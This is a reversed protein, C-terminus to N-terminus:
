ILNTKTNNQNGIEESIKQTTRRNIVWGSTNFDRVIVTFTHIEWKLETLKQKTCNSPRNNPTNYTRSTNFRLLMYHGRKDWTVRESKFDTKDLILTAM